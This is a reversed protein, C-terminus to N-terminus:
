GGPVILAEGPRYLSQKVKVKVKVKVKFNLSWIFPIFNLVNCIRFTFFKMEVACM